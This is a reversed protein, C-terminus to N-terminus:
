ILPKLVGPLLLRWSWKLWPMGPLGLGGLGIGSLLIYRGGSFPSWRSSRRDPNQPPLLKITTKTTKTKQERITDVGEHMPGPLGRGHMLRRGPLGRCRFTSGIRADARNPGAETGGCPHGSIAGAGRLHGRLYSWCSVSVTGHPASVGRPRLYSRCGAPRSLVGLGMRWVGRGLRGM